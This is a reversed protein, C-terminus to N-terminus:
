GTLRDPLSSTLNWDPRYGHATLLQSAGGTQNLVGVALQVAQEVSTQFGSAATGPPVFLKTFEVILLLGVILILLCAKKAELSRGLCLFSKTYFSAREFRDAPDGVDGMELVVAEAERVRGGPQQKKKHPLRGSEEKTRTM